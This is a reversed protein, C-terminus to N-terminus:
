LTVEIMKEKTLKGTFERKSTSSLVRILDGVNGPEQVLGTTSLTVGSAQVKLRVTEGRRVDPIKSLATLTLFQSELITQRTEFKSLEDQTMEKGILTSRYQHALGQALDFEQLRLSAGRLGTLPALKQTSVWVSKIARFGVPYEVPEQNIQFYARGRGDERIYRISQIEFPPAQTILEIKTGPFVGSLEKIVQSSFDLAIVSWSFFLGIFTLGLKMM